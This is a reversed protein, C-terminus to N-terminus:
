HGMKAIMQSQVQQDMFKHLLDYAVECCASVNPLLAHLTALLVVDHCSGFNYPTQTMPLPLLWLTTLITM